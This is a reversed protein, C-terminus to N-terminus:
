GLAEWNKGVDELSLENSGDISYNLGAFVVSHINAIDDALERSILRKWLGPQGKWFHQNTSQPRLNEISHERIIAGVDKDPWGFERFLENLTQEPKAVMEEYRIVKADPAQAWEYSVSFLSSARPSKAYAAFEPDAPTRGILTEEGGNEGKLWNKTESENQSFHLISILLDLPNRVLVVVRFNHRGLVEVFEETRHWHLQLILNDEPLMNWNIDWPEHVAIQAADYFRGLMLRLWTNGSRPTSIVAIRLPTRDANAMNFVEDELM